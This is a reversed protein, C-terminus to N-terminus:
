KSPSAKRRSTKWMLCTDLEEDIAVGYGVAVAEVLLELAQEETNAPSAVTM